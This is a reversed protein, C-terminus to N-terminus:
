CASRLVDIVRRLAEVPVEPSVRLRDGSALLIEIEGAPGSATDTVQVPILSLPEQRRGGRGDLRRVWYELKGRSVGHARVFEAKTQGSARWKRVLRKM